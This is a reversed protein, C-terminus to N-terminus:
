VNKDNKDLKFFINTNHGYLAGSLCSNYTGILPLNLVNLKHNYIYICVCVCVYLSKM